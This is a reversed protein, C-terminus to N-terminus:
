RVVIKRYPKVIWWSDVSLRCPSLKRATLWGRKTARRLRGIEAAILSGAKALERERDGPKWWEATWPWFEPPESPEDESPHLAYSAAAMALQGGSHADDHEPTWGEVDQHRRREATIVAIGDDIYQTSESYAFEVKCGAPPGRTVGDHGTHEADM